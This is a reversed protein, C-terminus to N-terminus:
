RTWSSAPCMASSTRPSRVGSRTTLGALSHRERLGGSYRPFKSSRALEVESQLATLSTIRRDIAQAEQQRVELATSVLALREGSGASTKGTLDQIQSQLGAVAALSNALEAREGTLGDKVLREETIREGLEAM